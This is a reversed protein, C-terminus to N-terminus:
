NNCKNNNNNNNFRLDDYISPYQFIADAEGFETLNMAIVLVFDAM